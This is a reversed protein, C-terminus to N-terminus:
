NAFQCANSRTGIWQVHLVCLLILYMNVFILLLPDARTGDRALSVGVTVGHRELDGGAFASLLLVKNASGIVISEGGIATHMGICGLAPIHEASVRAAHQDETNLVQVLGGASKGM